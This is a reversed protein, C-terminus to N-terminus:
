HEGDGCQDDNAIRTRGRTDYGCRYEETKTKANEVAIIHRDKALKYPFVLTCCSISKQIGNPYTRTGQDCIVQTSGRILPM